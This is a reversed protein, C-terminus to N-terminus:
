CSIRIQDNVNFYEMFKATIIVTHNRTGDMKLPLRVFVSASNMVVAFAVIGVNM